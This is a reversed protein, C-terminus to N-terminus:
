AATRGFIQKGLESIPPLASLGAPRGVRPFSNWLGSQFYFLQSLKSAPNQCTRFSVRENCILRYYDGWLVETKHVDTKEETPHPIMRACLTVSEGGEHTHHVCYRRRRGKTFPVLSHCMAGESQSLCKPPLIKNLPLLRWEIVSFM